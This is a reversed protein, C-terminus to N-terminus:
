PETSAEQRIHNATVAVAKEPLEHLFRGSWYNRLRVASARLNRYSPSDRHGLCGALTHPEMRRLRTRDTARTCAM